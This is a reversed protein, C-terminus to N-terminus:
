KGRRRSGAYRNRAAHWAREANTTDPPIALHLAHQRLVSSSSSSSSSSLHRSSTKGKPLAASSTGLSHSWLQEQPSTEPASKHQPSVAKIVPSSGGIVDGGRLKELGNRLSVNEEELVGIRLQNAQLQQEMDHVLDGSSQVVKGQPPGSLEPFDVLLRERQTAQELEARLQAINEDLEVVRADLRTTDKQLLSCQAQKQTLQEQLTDKERTGHTVTRTLEERKEEEEELRSQLDEREVVLSEVRELLTQHKQQLSEQQRTASQYKAKEKDLLIRAGSLEAELAVNREEVQVRADELQQVRKVEEQLADRERELANRTEKLSSLETDLEQNRSKLVDAGRKLHDQEEQLRSKLQMVRREQEEEMMKWRDLERKLRSTLEEREKEALRLNEKLPDITDMVEHLHKDVRRMDRQQQLAWQAVDYATLRGVGVCEEMEALLSQLSCPLGLSRCLAVLANSSERLAKQVQGCADCPVLSSELTQVGVTHADSSIAARPPDRLALPASQSHPSVSTGSSTPSRHPVDSSSEQFSSSTRSSTRREESVNEQLAQGPLLVLNKWYTKVVPGISVGSPTQGAKISKAGLM